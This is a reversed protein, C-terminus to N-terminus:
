HMTPAPGSKDLAPSKYRAIIRERAEQTVVSVAERQLEGIREKVPHPVEAVAASNIENAVSSALTANVGSSELTRYVSKVFDGYEREAQAVRPSAPDLKSASAVRFALMSARNKAAVVDDRVGGVAEFRLTARPLAVQRFYDNAQAEGGLVRVIEKMGIKIANRRQDSDQALLSASLMTTDLTATKRSLLTIASEFAVAANEGAMMREGLENAALLSLQAARDNKVESVTFYM